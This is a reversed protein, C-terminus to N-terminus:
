TAELEDLKSLEDRCERARREAKRLEANWHQREARIAERRAVRNVREVPDAVFFDSIRAVLNM